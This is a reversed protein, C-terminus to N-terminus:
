GGDVFYFATAPPHGRSTPATLPDSPSTRSNRQGAGWDWTGELAYLPCPAGTGWTRNVAPSVYRTDPAPGVKSVHRTTRGRYSFGGCEDRVEGGRRKRGEGRLPKGGRMGDRKGRGSAKTGAQRGSNRPGQKVHDPERQLTHRNPQVGDNTGLLRLGVSV